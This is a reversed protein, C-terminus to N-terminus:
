FLNDQYFSGFMELFYPVRSVGCPDKLVLLFRFPLVCCGNGRNGLRHQACLLALRQHASPSLWGTGWGLVWRQVAGWAGGRLAAGPCKQLVTARYVAGTAGVRLLAAQAVVFVDNAQSNDSSSYIHKIWTQFRINNTGAHSYSLLRELSQMIKWKTFPNKGM